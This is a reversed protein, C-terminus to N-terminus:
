EDAKSIKAGQVTQGNPNALTRLLAFYTDQEQAYIGPSYPLVNSSALCVLYESMPLLRTFTLTV